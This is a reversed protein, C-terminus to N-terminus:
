GSPNNNNAKYEEKLYRQKFDDRQRILKTIENQLSVIEAKLEQENPEPRGHHQIDYIRAKATLQEHYYKNERAQLREIIERAQEVTKITESKVATVRKDM